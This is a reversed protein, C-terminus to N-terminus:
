EAPTLAYVGDNAKTNKRIEEAIIKEIARSLEKQRKEKEILEKKLDQENKRLALLSSELSRKDNDLEAQASRQEDLLLLKDKKQSMLEQNKNALLTRTEVIIEGQGERYKAVDKLHRLRMWAQYFDDAAFIYLMKDYSNNHKYALYVLKAYEDKLRALEEKKDNILDENIRMTRDLSNVERRISRILEGRLSIQKDLIAIEGETLKQESKTKSILENTIKIEALISKRQSQLEEKTQANVSLFYCSYVLLLLIGKM